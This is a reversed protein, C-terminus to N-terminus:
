LNNEFRSALWRLMWAAGYSFMATVIGLVMELISNGNSQFHNFFTEGWHAHGYIQIHTFFNLALWAVAAISCLSILNHTLNQLHAGGVSKRWLEARKTTLTGVAWALVLLLTLAQTENFGAVPLAAGRAITSQFATFEGPHPYLLALLAVGLGLQLIHREAWFQAM